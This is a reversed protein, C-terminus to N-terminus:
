GHRGQEFLGRQCYGHAQPVPATLGKDWGEGSM